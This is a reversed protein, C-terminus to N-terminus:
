NDNIRELKALPVAYCEIKGNTELPCQRVDDGDVSYTGNYIGARTFRIINEGPSVRYAAILAVRDRWRPQWIEIM